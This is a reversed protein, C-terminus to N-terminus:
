SRLSRQLRLAYERGATMVGLRALRAALREKRELGLVRELARAIRSGSVPTRVGFEESRRLCIRALETFGWQFGLKARKRYARGLPSGYEDVVGLRELEASLKELVRMSSRFRAESIGGSVSARTGEFRRYFSRGSPARVVRAGAAYARLTLDTDQDRVLTEDWSGALQYADRRWLVCCPPAWSSLDLFARFLDTEPGPIPLEWPGEVWAGSEDQTLTTCECIGITEPRDRTADVLAALTEPAILDDSDLFMLFAGSSMSVALNRAAPAGGSRALRQARIREPHDAAFREIVSWSGDTSADDVIIHEVAPYTQALVPQITEAVFPAANHCPTVVSVLPTQGPQSRIM